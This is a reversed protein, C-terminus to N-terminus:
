RNRVTNRNITNVHKRIGQPLSPLRGSMYCNLCNDLLAKYGEQTKIELVTKFTNTEFNYYYFGCFKDSTLRYPIYKELVDFSQKFVQWVDKAHDAQHSKKDHFISIEDSIEKLFQKSETTNKADRFIVDSKNNAFAMPIKAPVYGFKQYYTYGKDFFYNLSEYTSDDQELILRRKGNKVFYRNHKSQWANDPIRIRIDKQQNNALHLVYEDVLRMCADGITLGRLNTKWYTSMVHLFNDLEEYFCFYRLEVDILNSNNSVHLKLFPKDLKYLLDFAFFDHIEGTMDDYVNVTMPNMWVNQRLMLGMPMYYKYKFYLQSKNRLEKFRMYAICLEFYKKKKQDKNKIQKLQELQKNLDTKFQDEFSTLYEEKQKKAKEVEQKAKKIQTENGHGNKKYLKSLSKQKFDHLKTFCLLEKIVAMNDHKTSDINTISTAMEIYKVDDLGFHSESELKLTTEKTWNFWDFKPKIENVDNIFSGMGELYLGKSVNLQELKALRDIISQM